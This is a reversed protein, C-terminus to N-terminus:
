RSIRAFIPKSNRILRPRNGDAARALVIESIEGHVNWTLLQHHNRPQAAGTFRRERKVGNIGVSKNSEPTKPKWTTWSDYSM